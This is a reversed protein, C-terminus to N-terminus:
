STVLAFVPLMQEGRRIFRVEVAKGIKVEEPIGDIQTFLYYGEDLEVFGLTYPVVSAWITSPGRTITSHSYVKGRGRSVEWVLARKSCHPCFSHAPWVAEKCEACRQFVLQEQQLAQWYPEADLQRYPQPWDTRNTAESL